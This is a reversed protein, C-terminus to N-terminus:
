CRRIRAGACSLDRLEFLSHMLGCIVRACPWHRRLRDACLKIALRRGTRHLPGLLARLRREVRRERAGLLEVCAAVTGSTSRRESDGLAHVVQLSRVWLPPPQIIFIMRYRHNARSANVAMVVALGGADACCCCFGFMRTMMPSSM